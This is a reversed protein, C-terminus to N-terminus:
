GRRSSRRSARFAKCRRPSSDEGGLLKPVIWGDGLYNSASSLRGASSSSSEEDRKPLYPFVLQVPSLSRSRTSTKSVVQGILPLRTPTLEPEDDIDEVVQVVALEV